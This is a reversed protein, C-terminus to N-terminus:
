CQDKGGVWERLIILGSYDMLEEYMALLKAMM